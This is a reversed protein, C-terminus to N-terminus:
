VPGLTLSSPFRPIYESDSTPFATSGNWYVNGGVVIAVPVFTTSTTPSWVGPTFSLGPETYM